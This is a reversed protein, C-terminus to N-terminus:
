PSSITPNGATIANFPIGDVLGLKNKIMVCFMVADNGVTVDVGRAPSAFYDKAFTGLRLTDRCSSIRMCRGSVQRHELAVCSTHNENTLTQVMATVDKLDQLRQSKKDADNQFSCGSLLLITSLVLLLTRANM